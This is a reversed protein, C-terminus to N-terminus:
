FGDRGIAASGWVLLGTAPIIRLTVHVRHAASRHAGRRGGGLWALLCAVTLTVGVHAVSAANNIKHSGSNLNRLLRIKHAHARPM